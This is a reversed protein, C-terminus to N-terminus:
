PFVGPPLSDRCGRTSPSLCDYLPTLPINGGPHTKPLNGDESHEKCCNFADQSKLALLISQEGDWTAQLGMGMTRECWSSLTEGTLLHQDAQQGGALPVIGPIDKTQNGLLTDAFLPNDKVWSQLFPSNENELQPQTHCIPLTLLNHCALLLITDLRRFIKNVPLSVLIAPTKVIWFCHTYKRDKRYKKFCTKGDNYGAPTDSYGNCGPLPPPPLLEEARPTVAGKAFCRRCAPSQPAATPPPCLVCHLPPCVPQALLFPPLFPSLQPGSFLLSLSTPWFFFLSYSVRVLNKFAFILYSTLFLWTHIHFFSCLWMIRPTHHQPLRTLKTSKKTKNHPSPIEQFYSTFFQAM